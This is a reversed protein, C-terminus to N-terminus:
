FVGFFRCRISLSLIKLRKQECWRVKIAQATKREMTAGGIAVFIIFMFIINRLNTDLARRINNFLYGMLLNILITLRM